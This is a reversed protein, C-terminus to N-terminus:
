SQRETIASDLCKLIQQKVWEGGFDRVAEELTVEKDIPELGRRLVRPGDNETHVTVKVKWLWTETASM